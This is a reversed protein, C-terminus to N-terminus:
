AQLGAYGNEVWEAFGSDVASWHINGYTTQLRLVIESADPSVMLVTSQRTALSELMHSYSAKDTESFAYGIAVVQRQEALLEEARQNVRRVFEGRLGSAKNPIPAVLRDPLYYRYALGAMVRQFPYFLNGLSHPDFAFKSSEFPEMWRVGNKDPPGFSYDYSYVMYSGHLHLVLCKSDTLEYLEPTLGLEVAVDVGYGDHPSWTGAM